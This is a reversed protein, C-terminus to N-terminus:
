VFRSVQMLEKVSGYFAEQQDPGIVVIREDTPYSMVTQDTCYIYVFPYQRSLVDKNREAVIEAATVTRAPRQKNSIFVVFPQDVDEDSCFGLTLRTTAPGETRMRVSKCLRTSPTKNCSDELVSSVLFKVQFVFGQRQWGHSLLRPHGAASAIWLCSSRELLIPLSLVLLFLAVIWSRGSSGHLTALHLFCSSRALPSFGPQCSFLHWGYTRPLAAGPQSSRLSQRCGVM